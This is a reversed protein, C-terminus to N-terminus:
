LTGLLRSIIESFLIFYFLSIENILPYICTLYLYSVRLRPFSWLLPPSCYSFLSLKRCSSVDIKLLMFELGAGVATEQQESLFHVRYHYVGSVLDSLFKHEWESIVDRACPCCHSHQAQM